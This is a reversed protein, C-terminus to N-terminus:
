TFQVAAVVMAEVLDGEGNEPERGENPVVSLDDTTDSIRSVNSRFSRPIWGCMRDRNTTLDPTEDFGVAVALINRM